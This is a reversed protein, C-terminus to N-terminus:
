NYKNIIFMQNFISELVNVVISNGAQKYLQNDSIFESAKYFDSDIFGMLLWSEKPTLRRIQIGDYVRKDGGSNITRITGILEDKFFRVGEDIREEFVMVTKPDKYDRAYLTPSIDKFGHYERAFPCYAIKPERNGGQCTSITPCLGNENYVRKLCDHGKIDIKGVCDLKGIVESGLGKEKLITILKQTRKESYYYKDDVENELFDKVKLILNQKPPFIFNKNDIDKRFSVAFVRERTQPIGYDKANLVQYYTNYGQSDLYKIWLDFDPKFKKSVLNKVNEMLLYKPKKTEIVKRCEWLLSSHTGSDETLGEMKGAISISQCPFSYTFLDHDPIKEAQIKSIDGLNNSLKDAIFLTIAEKKSVKLYGKGELKEILENYNIFINHKSIYKKFKEIKDSLDHHMAAYSIIAYKDIECTAVIECDIQLNKLAKFQSGIGSFAEFVRLL